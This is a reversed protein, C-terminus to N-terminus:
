PTRAQKMAQRFLKAVRKVENARSVNCFKLEREVYGPPPNDVSMIAVHAVAKEAYQEPTM